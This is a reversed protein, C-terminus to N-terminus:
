WINSICGYKFLTVSFCVHNKVLRNSFLGEETWDFSAKSHCVKELSAIICPLNPTVNTISTTKQFAREGTIFDINRKPRVVQPRTEQSQSRPLNWIFHTNYSAPVAMSSLSFFSFPTTQQSVDCARPQQSALSTYLLCLREPLFSNGGQCPQLHFM